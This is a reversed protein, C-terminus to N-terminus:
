NKNQITIERNKDGGKTEGISLSKEEDSDSETDSDHKKNDSM